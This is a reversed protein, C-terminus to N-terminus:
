ENLFEQTRKISEPTGMDSWFGHIHHWGCQDKDNFYNLIDVIELEGRLSPKIQEAIEYVISSFLYLGTVVDHSPPHTPKEIIEEIKQPGMDSVWHVVGFMKPDSVEQLFVTANNSDSM